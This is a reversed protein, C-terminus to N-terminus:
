NKCKSLEPTPSWGKCPGEVHVKWVLSPTGCSVIRSQGPFQSWSGDWLCFVQLNRWVGKGEQSQLVERTEGSAERPARFKSGSLDAQIAPRRSPHAGRERVADQRLGDWPALSWSCAVPWAAARDPASRLSVFVATNIGSIVCGSLRSM